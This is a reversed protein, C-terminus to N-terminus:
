YNLEEWQDAVESHFVGGPASWSVLRLKGSPGQLFASRLDTSIVTYVKGSAINRVKNDDQFLRRLKERRRRENASAQKIKRIFGFM